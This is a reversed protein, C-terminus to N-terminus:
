MPIDESDVKNDAATARLVFCALVVLGIGILGARPAVSNLRFLRFARNM